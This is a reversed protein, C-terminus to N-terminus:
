RALFTRILDYLKPARVLFSDHGFDMALEAYSADKGLRLLAEVVERNGQPPYLWDSTFGIVLGPATVGALSSDLTKDEGYLDFRDLAKTLYLYTNADFRTVFSQGQYRLYSEVEFEVDFHEKSQDETRRKRGFKAEMGVDSLYTIHAMMRAVALGHAPGADPEYDGQKWDPDTVIAQRGTDNFAIAQATHRAGSALAIYRGVRDPFDINWQLTQMGGMSGGIVAHLRNIGLHDILLSQAKVMDQVTLKPFDLNYRQGTEPNISGPGTSGQCGGLVNSCIVFYQSTDIPKGPGVMFNWWGSKRENMSHVGACHHDGSLAHCILIANSKEANLHGYIEYRLTLEPIMGGSAFYFPESSHFDEFEVFGVEGEYQDLTTQESDNM